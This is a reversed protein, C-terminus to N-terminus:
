KRNALLEALRTLTQEGGELAGFAVMADREERTDAVMRWTLETRRDGLDVLTGYVFFNHPEADSTGHDYAFGNPRDLKTCVIRNPYDTGDPGHMTFSWVGGVRVDSAHTTTRFGHPGWWNSINAHDFFADYVLERPADFVRKIVIECDSTDSADTM